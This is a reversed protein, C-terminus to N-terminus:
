NRHLKFYIPVVFRVSVPRGQQTAPKWFPMNNIVQFAKEDCAEGIGKIIKVDTVKGASNVIFSVYVKGEVGAKRAKSPYTLNQQLYKRIGSDGGPFQPMTEVITFIIEEDGEDEGKRTDVEENFQLFQVPASPGSKAVSGSIVIMDMLVGEPSVLDKSEQKGKPPINSKDTSIELEEDFFDEEGIESFNVTIHQLKGGVSKVPKQNIKESQVITKEKKEVPPVPPAPLEINEDVIYDVTDMSLKQVSFNLYFLVGFLILISAAASYYFFKEKPKITKLEPKEGPLKEMLNSNIAAITNKLKEKDTLLGIGNLADSCMECTELHSKIRLKVKEPLGESRYREIGEMTLCGSQTFYKNAEKENM